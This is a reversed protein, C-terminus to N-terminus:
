RAVAFGIRRAAGLALLGAASFLGFLRLFRRGLQTVVQQAFQFLQRLPEFLQLRFDFRQLRLHAIGVEERPRVAFRLFHQRRQSVGLLRELLGEGTPFLQFRHFVASRQSVARASSRTTDVHRHAVNNLLFITHEWM